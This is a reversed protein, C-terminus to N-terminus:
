NKRHNYIVGTKPDLKERYERIKKKLKPTQKVLHDLLPDVEKQLLNYVKQESAASLNEQLDKQFEAIRFQLQDYIPLPQLQIALDLIHNLLKLQYLFDKQITENRVESSAVIDIQGFLPYVNDFAIDQFSALGDEEIGKIYQRAEMEFIWLVSPHISTCENQIVAKVRNEFETKNRDVATEIYQLIDDLKKANVSNLENKNFSILELVGLLERNKVIPALIVSKAGEDLLNKTLLNEPHDKAYADVNSIAFYTHDRMLAKFSGECLGKKCDEENDADLIFASVGQGGLHEYTSEQENYITYGVKLDPIKYISRFIEEYKKQEEERSANRQLLT